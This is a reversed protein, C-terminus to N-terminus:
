KQYKKALSKVEDVIQQGPIGKSEMQKAWDVLMPELNKSWRAQEEPPPGYFEMGQKKGEDIVGADAKDVAKGAKENWSDCIVQMTDKLDPPLSNWTDWNIFYFLSFPNLDVMVTYKVVEWLKFARLGENMILAGDVIGKQVALYMDPALMSVPTGGLLEVIKSANAGMTGIKMGKFDELTHIPKKTHIWQPAGSGFFLVKNGKLEKQYYENNLYLDHMVYDLTEASTIGTGPLGMLECLPFVGPAYMPTTSSADVTRNMTLNWHEGPPGYAGLFQHNFKIRGNTSKEIEEIWPNSIIAPWLGMPPDHDVYSLNIVKEIPAPASPAPASSKACSVAILLSLLVLGVTALMLKIRM